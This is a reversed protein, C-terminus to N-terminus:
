ARGEFLHPTPATLASNGLAMDADSLRVKRVAHGWVKTQSVGGLPRLNTSFETHRPRFDCIKMSNESVDVSLGFHPGKKGIKDFHFNM